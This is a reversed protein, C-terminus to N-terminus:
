PVATLVGLPLEDKEEKNGIKKSQQFFHSTPSHM